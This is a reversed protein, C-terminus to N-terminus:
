VTSIFLIENNREGGGEGRRERGGVRKMEGKERWREGGGEERGGRERETNHLEM